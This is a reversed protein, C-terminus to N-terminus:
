PRWAPDRGIMGLLRDELPADPPVRVEDGFVVVGPGFAGPTRLQEMVPPPLAAMSEWLQAVDQPAITSDQGTARALDWGHLPMDTSPVQDIHEAVTKPGGPTDCLVAATEPDALLAEVDARAGTFAALPDEVASPARSLRRGLPKLTVAHMDIVHEVVDRATWKRCPSQWSWQEPRVAAVKRSFDDARRRYRDAIDPEISTQTM